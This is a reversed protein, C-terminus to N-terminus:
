KLPFKGRCYFKRRTIDLTIGIMKLVKEKQSINKEIGLENRPSIGFGERSHVYVRKCNTGM